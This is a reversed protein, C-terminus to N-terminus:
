RTLPEIFQSFAYAPNEEKMFSEGILFGEFGESKLFNIDDISKIGSESIKTISDPINKALKVSHELDVKFTKLDRNNVGVVNVFENIHDLEEFDHLELLVELNLNRAF